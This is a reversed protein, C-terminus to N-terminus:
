GPQHISFPVSSRVPAPPHTSGSVPLLIVHRPPPPQWPQVEISGYRRSSVAPARFLSLPLSDHCSGAVSRLRTRNM